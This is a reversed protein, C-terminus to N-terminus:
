QKVFHIGYEGAIEVLRSMDPPGPKAFEAACRAFFVEFGSPSTHVLM